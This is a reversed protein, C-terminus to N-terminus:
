ASPSKPEPTPSSPPNDDTLVFTDSSSSLNEEANPSPVPVPLTDPM